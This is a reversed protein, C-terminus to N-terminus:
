MQLIMPQLGVLNLNSVFIGTPAKLRASSLELATCKSPHFGRKVKSSPKFLVMSHYRLVCLDWTPLTLCSTRNSLYIAHMCFDEEEEEGKDSADCCCCSWFSCSSIM